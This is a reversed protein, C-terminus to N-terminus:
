SYSLVQVELDAGRAFRVAHVDGRSRAAEVRVLTLLGVPDTGESRVGPGINGRGSKDIERGATSYAFGPSGIGGIGSCTAGALAAARAVFNRWAAKTYRCTAM